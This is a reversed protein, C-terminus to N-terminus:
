KELNKKQRKPSGKAESIRIVEGELNIRILSQAVIMIVELYKGTMWEGDNQWGVGCPRGDLGRWEYRTYSGQPFIQPSANSNRVPLKHLVSDVHM